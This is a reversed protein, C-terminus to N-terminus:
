GGRGQAPAHAAGALQVHVHGSIENEVRGLVIRRRDYRFARDRPPLDDIRGHGNLTLMNPFAPLADAPEIGVPREGYFIKITDRAHTPLISGMSLPQQRKRCKLLARSRHVTGAASAPLSRESSAFLARGAASRLDCSRIRSERAGRSAEVDCFLEPPFPFWPSLRLAGAVRKTTSCPIARPM